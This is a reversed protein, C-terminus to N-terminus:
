FRAAVQVGTPALSVQVGRTQGWRVTEVFVPTTWAVWAVVAATNNVARLRRFRRQAETDDTSADQLGALSIGTAVSVATGAIQLGGYAVGVIPRGTQFYHVGGPILVSAPYKTTPPPVRPAPVLPARARLEARVSEFALVVEPPHEFPDMIFDPNETLLAEFASHAAAPGQEGLLMDGLWALTEEKVQTPLSPGRALLEQLTERASQTDGAQYRGVADQLARAPDTPAAGPTAAAAAPTEAPTGSGGEAPEASAPRPAAGESTAASTQLTALLVLPLWM